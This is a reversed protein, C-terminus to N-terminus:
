GSEVRSFHDSGHLPRDFVIHGTICAVFLAIPIAGTKETAGREIFWRKDCAFTVKLLNNTGPLLLGM